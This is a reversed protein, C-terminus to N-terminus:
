GRAKLLRNQLRCSAWYKRDSGSPVNQAPATQVKRSLCPLPSASVGWGEWVPKQGGRWRGTTGLLGEEKWPCTRLLLTAGRGRGGPQTQLLHRALVPPRPGSGFCSRVQGAGGREASRWRGRAMCALFAGCGRADGPAAPPIALRKVGRASSELSRACTVAPSTVM